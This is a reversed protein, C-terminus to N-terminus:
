RCGFTSIDCAYCYHYHFVNCTFYLSVLSVNFSGRKCRPMAPFCTCHIVCANFDAILVILLVDITICKCRYVENLKIEYACLLCLRCYFLFSLFCNETLVCMGNKPYQRYFKVTEGIEPHLSIAGVLITCAVTHFHNHGSRHQKADLTKHCSGLLRHLFRRGILRSCSPPGFLSRRPQCGRELEFLFSLVRQSLPFRQQLL